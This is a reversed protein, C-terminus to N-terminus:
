ARFMSELMGAHAGRKGILALRSQSALVSNHLGMILCEVESSRRWRAVELVVEARIKRRCGFFRGDSGKDTNVLGAKWPSRSLARTIMRGAVNHQETKMSSIVHNQCSRAAPNYLQTSGVVRWIGM